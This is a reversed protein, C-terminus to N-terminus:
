QTFRFFLTGLLLSLVVIFVPKIIKKGNKIAFTSGIYNGLISCVAAVVAVKYYVTGEGIFTIVSGLNSALNAIKANGTATVLDFGVFTTFAIALFTGTGPGFFGDYMGIFFSFISTRFLIQKLSLKKDSVKEDGFDKKTLIFIALAPIVILLLYNVFKEDIKLILRTGILSGVFSCAAAVVASPLHYKKNKIYNFSSIMSGWVSSFKNTGLLFHGSVSEDLFTRYTPLGILGGGGAISDIFGAIFILVCIYVINM